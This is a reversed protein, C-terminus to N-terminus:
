NFIKICNNSIRKIQGNSMELAVRDTITYAVNDFFAVAEVIKGVQLTDYRASTAYYVLDGPYLKNGAVDVGPLYTTFGSMQKYQDATIRQM